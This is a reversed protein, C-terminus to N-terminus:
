NGDVAQNPLNDEGGEIKEKLLLTDRHHKAAIIRLLLYCAIFAVVGLSAVLWNKDILASVALFTWGSLSAAYVLTLGQIHWVLRMGLVTMLPPRCHFPGGHREGPFPLFKLKKELMRIRRVLRDYIQTNRQDYSALGITVLVGLCALAFQAQRPVHGPLTAMAAGTAVPLFGLLKFRVEHLAHFYALTQEYDVIMHRSDNDSEM